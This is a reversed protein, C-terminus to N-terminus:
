GLIMKVFEILLCEIIYWKSYGNERYCGYYRDQIRRWAAPISKQNSAGGMEFNALVKNVTVVNAGAKRVKLYFGYDDHLGKCPFPNNKYLSAKVFMTPHNWDRSTQYRRQRAKKLMTKGNQKVLRIDGFMLDCRDKEFTELATQVAEKEYWDGSNLIGIVEGSARQIGKNMADYIGRDPESFIRYTIGKEEMRTRYEEAIEVTHDQSAGDIILYEINSSTQKWVSELTKGIDKENNYAITVISARGQM